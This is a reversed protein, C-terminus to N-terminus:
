LTRQVTLDSSCVIPDNQEDRAKLSGLETWFRIKTELVSIHFGGPQMSHM